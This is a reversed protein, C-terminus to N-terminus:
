LLTTWGVFLNGKIVFWQDLTCLSITMPNNVGGITYMDNNEVGIFKLYFIIYLNPM